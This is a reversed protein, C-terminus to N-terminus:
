GQRTGKLQPKACQRTLITQVKMNMPQLTMISISKAHVRAKGWPHLQRHSCWQTCHQWKCPVPICLQQHFCTHQCEWFPLGFAALHWSSLSEHQDQQCPLAVSWSRSLHTENTFWPEGWPERWHKKWSFECCFATKKPHHWHSPSHCHPSPLPHNCTFPQAQQVCQVPKFMWFICTSCNSWSTSVDCLCAPWDMEQVGQGQVHPKLDNCCAPSSCIVDFSRTCACTQDSIFKDATHRIDSAHKKYEM